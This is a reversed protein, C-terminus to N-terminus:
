WRRGRAAPDPFKGLEIRLYGTVSYDGGIEAAKVGFIFTENIRAEPSLAFGFKKDKEWGQYLGTATLRGQFADSFQYQVLGSLSASDRNDAEVGSSSTEITSAAGIRGDALIGWLFHNTERKIYESYLYALISKQTMSFNNGSTHNSGDVQEFELLGKGQWQWSKEGDLESFYQVMPGGGATVGNWHYGGTKMKGNDYSGLTDLGTYWTGAQSNVKTLLSLEAYSGYWSSQRTDGYWAGFSPEAYIGSASAINAIGIGIAAAIIVIVGIHRNM